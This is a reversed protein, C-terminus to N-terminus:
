GRARKKAPPPAEANETRVLTRKGVARGLADLRRQVAEGTYIATHEPVTLALTTDDAELVASGVLGPAGGSLTYALRLGLGVARARGITAEDILGFIRSLIPADPNGGYRAHLAVALFARGQHDLGAVPMRLCRMFTQEDRYDPHESWGIDSLLAAARRLRKQGAAEDPFLPDTWRVLEESGPAFRPNIRAIAEAATLLPDLRQEAPPLQEFLHGERLGYASFVVRDPQITKVLRYLVYAALPVTELRKRSIGAVKELSRRSQRGILDTFSEIEQRGVSYNQIIHLPYGTQEMHIRALARWTGGVAYFRRGRGQPLWDLSAVAQDVIRRAKADDDGVGEALRLAGIPLSAVLPPVVAGTMAVEVSGGGLDGTIGDADPIGARVGAASLRGEEVGDIVRVKVQNRQEIDAVFRAGDSADRVAATAIIDLRSVGLGRALAVFREINDRALTVGEPNLRGSSNLGRGLACMVKENFLVMPSRSIRDYIVLRLSNSGIDIVGVMTRRREDLLAVASFPHTLVEM